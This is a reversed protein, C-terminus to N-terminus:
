RPLMDPYPVMSEILLIVGDKSFMSLVIIIASLIIAVGLNNEKIEELENVPTMWTYIKIGIIVIIISLVYAIAIYIGGYGLFSLILKFTSVDTNSVIRFANLIPPIVGMLIYGVSFLISAILIDYATNDSEIKLKKKGYIRILRYTIFLIVIGCSLASLIEVLGLLAIKENM